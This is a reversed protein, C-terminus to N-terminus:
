VHAKDLPIESAVSCCVVGCTLLWRSFYSSLGAAAVRSRPYKELEAKTLTELLPLIVYYKQDSSPTNKVWSLRSVELLSMLHKSLYKKTFVGPIYYRPFQDLYEKNMVGCEIIKKQTALTM